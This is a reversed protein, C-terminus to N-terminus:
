KNPTRKNCNVCTCNRVAVTMNGVGVSEVDLGCQTKEDSTVDNKFRHIKKSM